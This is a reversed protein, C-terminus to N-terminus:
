RPNKLIKLVFQLWEALSIPSIEELTKSRRKLILNFINTLINWSTLELLSFGPPLSFWGQNWSDPVLPVPRQELLPSGPPVPFRGLNWFKPVLHFRSGAQTWFNPFWPSGSVPRPELLPSGHPVPFRSQKIKHRGRIEILNSIGNWLWRWEFLSRVWTSYM